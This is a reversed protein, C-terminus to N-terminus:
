LPAATMLERYELEAKVQGLYDLQAHHATEFVARIKSGLTAKQAKYMLTAARRCTKTRERLLRVLSLNKLKRLNKVALDTKEKRERLLAVGRSAMIAKRIGRTLKEKGTLLGVAAENPLDTLPQREIHDDSNVERTHVRLRKVELKNKHSM